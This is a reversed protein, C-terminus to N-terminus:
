IIGLIFGLSLAIALYILLERTNFMMMSYGKDHKALSQWFTTEKVKYNEMYGGRIKNDISDLEHLCKDNEGEQKIMTWHIVDLLDRITTDESISKRKM